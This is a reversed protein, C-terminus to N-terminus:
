RYLTIAVIQSKMRPRRGIASTQFNFMFELVLAASAPIKLIPHTYTVPARYFTRTWFIALEGRVTGTGGNYDANWVKVM